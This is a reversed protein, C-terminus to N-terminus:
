VSPLKQSQSWERSTTGTFHSRRSAESVAAVNRDIRDPERVTVISADAMAAMVAVSYLQESLARGILQVCFTETGLNAAQEVHGMLAM